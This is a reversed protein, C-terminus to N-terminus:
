MLFCKWYWCFLVRIPQWSRLFVWSSIKTVLDTLGRILLYSLPCAYSHSCTFTIGFSANFLNDKHREEIYERGRALMGTERSAGMWIVLLWPNINDKHPFYYLDFPKGCQVSILMNTIWPCINMTCIPGIWQLM